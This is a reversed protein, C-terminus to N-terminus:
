EIILKSRYTTKGNIVNMTYVGPAIGHLSLTLVHTSATHTGLDISRGVVDVLTIAVSGSIAEDLRLTVNSKAPNPFVTVEDVFEVKPRVNSTGLVSVASRFLGYSDTGYLFGLSDMHFQGFQRQPFETLASWTDGHDLSRYLRGAASLVIMVNNPGVLLHKMENGFFETHSPTVKTWTAGKDISRYLDNYSNGEDNVTIGYIYGRKNILLRRTLAPMDVPLATWDAGGNTSRLISDQRTAGSEILASFLEPYTSLTPMLVYKGFAGNLMPSWESSSTTYNFITGNNLWFTGDTSADIDGHPFPIDEWNATQRWTRGTDDSQMIRNWIARSVVISGNASVAVSSNFEDYAEDHLKGPQTIWELYPPDSIMLTSGFSYIRGDPRINMKGTGYSNPAITHNTTFAVSDAIYVAPLKHGLVRKSVVQKPIYVTQGDLQWTSELPSLGYVRKGTTIWVSRDFGTLEIINSDESYVGSQTARGWNEGFDSSYFLGKDTHIMSGSADPLHFAHSKITIDDPLDAKGDNWSNGGDTSRYMKGESSIAVVANAYNSFKTISVGKTIGDVIQWTILDTSRAIGSPTAALLYRDPTSSKLALLENISSIPLDTTLKIFTQADNMSTFLGKETSVVLATDGQPTRFDLISTIRASEGIDFRMAASYSYNRTAWLKGTETGVMIVSDLDWTHLGAATVREGVSLSGNLPKWMNDQATSASPALFLLALLLPIPSHRPM